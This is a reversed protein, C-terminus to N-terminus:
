ASIAEFSITPQGIGRLSFEFNFSPTVFFRSGLNFRSDAFNNINDWEMMLLVKDRLNGSVALTGGIDNSDFDSIAM